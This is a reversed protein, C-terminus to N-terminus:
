SFTQSLLLKPHLPLTPRSESLHSRATTNLSVGTLTSVIFSSLRSCHIAALLFSYFYSYNYPVAANKVITGSLLIIM